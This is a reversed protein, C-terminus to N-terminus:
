LLSACQRPEFDMCNNRANKQAPSEPPSPYMGRHTKTYGTSIAMACHEYERDSFGHSFHKCEGCFVERLKM